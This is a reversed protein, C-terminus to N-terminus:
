FRGSVIVTVAVLFYCTIGVLALCDVNSLALTKLLTRTPYRRYGKMEMSIAVERSRRLTRLILPLIVRPLAKAKKWTSDLDLGRAQHSEFIAHLDREILPFFRLALGVLAACSHSLGLKVFLLTLDESSTWMIFQLCLACLIILLLVGRLGILLGGSYLSLPGLELVVSGHDQLLGQLIIIQFGIVGIVKLLPVFTKLPIRASATAAVVLGLGMLITKADRALFVLALNGVLWALKVRPDLRHVISDGSYGLLLRM